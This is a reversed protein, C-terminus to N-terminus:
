TATAPSRTAALYEELTTPTFNEYRDTDTEAFPAVTIM